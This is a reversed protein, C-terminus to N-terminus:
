WGATRSKRRCRGVPDDFGWEALDLYFARVTALAALYELRESEVELRAGDRIVTTTETRL